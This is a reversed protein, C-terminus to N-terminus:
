RRFFTRRYGAPPAGLHITVVHGHGVGFVTLPTSGQGVLFEGNCSLRHDAYQLGLMKRLENLTAKAPLVYFRTAEGNDARRVEIQMETPEPPAPYDAAENTPRMLGSETAEFLKMGLLSLVNVFVDPPLPPREASEEMCGFASAAALKRDLTRPGDSGHTGPCLYHEVLWRRRRLTADPAEPLAVPPRPVCQAADTTSVAPQQQQKREAAM